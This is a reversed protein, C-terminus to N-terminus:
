SLIAAEIQTAFANGDKPRLAADHHLAHFIPSFLAPPGSWDEKRLVGTPHSRNVVYWFVAALQFVDSAANIPDLRGVTRNNAEPSMWYRPGLAQLDPTLDDEKVGVLDCLGYDSLVWREGVVLINAPKIDRHIAKAHLAGLAKSLGRFQSFYIEKPVDEEKVLEKLTRDALDMVIFPVAAPIKRAETRGPVVRNGLVSGHGQYSILHDHHLGSCVGQERTFRAIRTPDLIAQFKVAFERGSSAESCKHVVANGGANLRDDVNYQRGDLCKIREPVEYYPGKPSKRADLLLPIMALGM